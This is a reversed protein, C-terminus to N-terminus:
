CDLDYATGVCSCVVVDVRGRFEEVLIFAAHQEFGDLVVFEFVDVDVLALEEEQRSIDRVVRDPKLIGDTNDDLLRPWRITQVPQSPITLIAILFHMLSREIARIKARLNFRRNVLKLSILSRPLTLIAALHTINRGLRLYHLLHPLTRLLVRIRLHQM